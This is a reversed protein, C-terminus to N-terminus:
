LLCHRMSGQQQRGTAKYAECREKKYWRIPCWRSLRVLSPFRVWPLVATLFIKPDAGELRRRRLMSRLTCDLLSELTHTHTHIHLRPFCHNPNVTNSFYFLFSCGYCFALSQTGWVVSICNRRPLGLQSTLPIWQQSAERGPKCTGTKQRWGWISKGRVTHVEPTQRTEGERSSLPWCPVPGGLSQM